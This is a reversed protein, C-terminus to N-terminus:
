RRKYHLWDAGNLNGQKFLVMYIEFTKKNRM